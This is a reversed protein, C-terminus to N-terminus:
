LVLDHDKTADVEAELSIPTFDSFAGTEESESSDIRTLDDFRSWPGSDSEQTIENAWINEESLLSEEKYQNTDAHTRSRTKRRKSRSAGGIVEGSGKTHDATSM